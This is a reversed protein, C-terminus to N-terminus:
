SLHLVASIRLEALARGAAAVSQAGANVFIGSIAPSRM